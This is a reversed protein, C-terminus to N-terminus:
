QTRAQPLADEIAALLEPAEPAVRTGFAGLLRGEPDILYKHFNWRPAAKSGLEEAAWLYFPHAGQGKVAVKSTMPFEIGYTLECFEAIEAESGPEQQGFDNSPVGLVVLGRDRYREWLSQLGEYQKTFGCFSATNVVLIAKGAFDSLPLDGGEIAEFAFSHAGNNASGVAAVSLPAVLLALAPLASLLRVM